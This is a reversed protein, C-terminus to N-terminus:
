PQKVPLARIDWEGILQVAAGGVFDGTVTLEKISLYWALYERNTNDFVIINIAYKGPNLLLQPISLRINMPLGNNKLVADNYGSHCQAVLQREQNVITLSILFTDHRPAVKTDFSITLPEGYQFTTKKDSTAGYLEFREISAEGSGVPAQIGSKEDAFLSFYHQIAEEAAGQFVNHGQHLVVCKSCMRAINDMSHSVIIVACNKSMETIRNYCKARFGVDGVALVEDVLLIDPERATAVAFGLRVFMGSSYYKVPTDLFDGINAFAVIDDFKRAIEDRSMGLIAANVYINERGTLMPHFGAALEIIGGVRGRVEIRGRDPMYIGSLMKLMTSKGSGNPGIIGLTEGRRLTLSIDDVAWFEHKRLKEPRTGMGLMNRAIDQIGYWMSPQLYRCFKKSVHEVTVMIDNNTSNTEAM